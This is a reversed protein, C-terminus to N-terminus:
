EVVELDAAIELWGPADSADLTYSTLAVTYREGGPLRLLWDGPAELQAWVSPGAEELYGGTAGPAPTLGEVQLSFEGGVGYRSRPRTAGAPKFTEVNQSFRRRVGPGANYRIYVNEGTAASRLGIVGHSPVRVSASATRWLAGSVVAATITVNVDYPPAEVWGRWAGGSLGLPVLVRSPVGRADTWHAWAAASDWTGGTVSVALDGDDTVTATVTPADIGPADEHATIPIDYVRALAPATAADYKEAECDFAYLNGSFDAFAGDRTVLQLTEVYIHGDQDAVGPATFSVETEGAPVQATAGAWKPTLNWHPGLSRGHVDDMCYRPGSLTLASAGRSWNSRAYVALTGDPRYEAWSEAVPRYVARLTQYAWDGCTNSPEDFVRARVQVEHADYTAWEYAYTFSRGMYMIKNGSKATESKVDDDASSDDWASWDTWVEGAGLRGSAAAALSYRSRTRTQVQFTYHQSTFAIRLGSSGGSPIGLVAGGGNNWRINSPTVYGSRYEAM